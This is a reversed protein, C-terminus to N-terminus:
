SGDDGPRPEVTEIIGDKPNVTLRAGEEAKKAALAREWAFQMTTLRSGRGRQSPVDATHLGKMSLSIKRHGPDVELIRVEVDDGPSVISQPTRVYGEAMESIHVLGNVPAGIDVFAGFAAVGEVTGQLVMGPELEKLSLPQSHPGIMTLSIRRRELDVSKVWVTVEDGVAVVSDVKDVFGQRLESIHILGDRGVGIDVFAGFKALGVVRGQYQQGPQVQTLDVKRGRKRRRRQRSPRPAEEGGPAQGSPGEATPSPPSQDQMAVVETQSEATPLRIEEEKV